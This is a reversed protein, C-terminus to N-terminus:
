PLNAETLQEYQSLILRGQSDLWARGYTSALLSEMDQYIVGGDPYQADPKACDVALSIPSGVVQGEGREVTVVTGVVTCKGFDGQEPPLVGAVAIVIIAAADRRAAEYVEPAMMALVPPARSAVSVVIILALIGVLRARRFPQM